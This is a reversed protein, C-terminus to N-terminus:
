QSSLLLPESAGKRHFIFYRDRFIQVSYDESQAYREVYSQFDEASAFGTPDQADIIVLDINPPEDGLMYAHERHSLHPILNTNAALPTGDPVSKVIERFADARPSSRFVFTPFFFPNLPSRATFGLIMASIIIGLVVKRKRPWRSIVTHAGRIAGYLIGAVLVSDYQYLGTFQFPFTTLMNEVLGPIVLILSRWSFFPLFAVPIFLWLFYLIKEPALITKAILAPNTIATTAIESFSSGLHAYRDLRLLGGGLSPMIVKIALLFYVIACLAITAGIKRERTAKLPADTKNQALVFFGFFLVVLIIDERTSAALALFITMWLLNRKEFFYFAGLLFPVAFSVPHFDYSNIWHLAPYLLYNTAFALAYSKKRLIHYALLYAPIAGLALAITQVILLYYPSQFLLYGPVLAFLWPSMHVGLTNHIEEINNFMIRGQTTNWMTQVFAGMDWTQTYFNYHRFSTFAGFVVVYLAIITWLFYEKRLQVQM